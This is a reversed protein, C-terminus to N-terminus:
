RGVTPHPHELFFRLMERAADPGQPDTYSGASSGGSWAHGAGHIVWQELIARGRADAHLTRRYARGGPVQGRQVTATAQLGAAAAGRAQAIVRDGNCPHVTGDRDGHFVITPMIRQQEGDPVGSFGHAVATGGQQMAAFASPLDSAAGYALGSHVGVAAYLDPYTVGMIAAAAGGASLGAVYVRQPDVSYDRMLRRTIGAILSPEGQERQQDAPNFWNWCRQANASSAQAPYAVFCPHEEALANMGTGAAFDDPSQTCGHLMVVLPLTQGHHGSPVYLKYARSGAQNRYSGAIFKASDPVVVPAQAPFPKALGELGPELRTPTVRELLSRLAEPLPPRAAGETGGMPWGAIGIGVAQRPHSAAPHDTVESKEPAVDIIPPTRGAPSDSTDGTLTELEPEGHLLRQLLATAEALRGAQVFRAAELMAARPTENM